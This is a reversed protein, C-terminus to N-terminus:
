MLNPRDNPTVDFDSSHDWQPNQSNNVVKTKDKQKGCKLVAYPDSKGIIDAKILNKAKILDVHFVLDDEDGLGTAPGGALVGSKRGGPGASRAGDESRTINVSHSLLHGIDISSWSAISILIKTNKQRFPFPFKHPKKGTCLRGYGFYVSNSANRHNNPFNQLKKSVKKSTHKQHYRVYTHVQLPRMKRKEWVDPPLSATKWYTQM